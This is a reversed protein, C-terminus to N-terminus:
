SYSRDLDQQFWDSPIEVGLGEEVSRRHVLDCIAAFQIGTSRNNCYISEDETNRGKSPDQIIESLTVYDKMEFGRKGHLDKHKELLSKQGVVYDESALYAERTTGIIKDFMSEASSSVENSKTDVVFMGESVCDEPFVPAGANTCTAVIDADNVAKEPSSVPIVDIGLLASMENAFEERHSVTPSYVKVQDLERVASFSELYVKAMGGSGIIGVTDADNRSLYKCAVGATAGVRAHQLAEDNLLGLIEGNTSDFLLVFGMSKGEEVNYQIERLKDDKDRRWSYVDSVFRFALRPPDLIAGILSHWWYYDLEGRGDVPSLVDTRPQFAADGRGLQIFANEMVDVADAINLVKQATENDILLAM